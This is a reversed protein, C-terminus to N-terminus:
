KRKRYVPADEKHDYRVFEFGATLLEDEEQATKPRKIVYDANSFNRHQYRDTSSIARHGLLKKVSYIDGAREYERSARWHRFTHFHIKLLRPNNTLEATKQRTKDFTARQSVFTPNFLYDGHNKKLNKVWAITKETVKVTRTKSGKEPHNIAITNNKEDIDTWQIKRIEGIRAGTDKAVQLFTKTAKSCANILLDIEEELPDFAEKPQYDVAIPDWEIKYAKAFAHYIKVINFKAATTMEETALITEVTEPKQLDAGLRVLKNLYTVRNKITNAAKNRKKMKWAFDTIYGNQTQNETLGASTRDKELAALALGELNNQQSGETNDRVINLSSSPDSFRTRCDKCNYRQVSVDGYYRHGNCVVHHSGCEPCKVTQVQATM